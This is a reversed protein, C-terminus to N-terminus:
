PNLRWLAYNLMGAFIVWILYPVLLRAALPHHAGFALIAAGLVGALLALDVLAWGPQQLGFFLWSWAGNLALQGLFLGLALPAGRFGAKRWVLWAAIAMLTYLVTWVPGFLWDPPTWWPKTLGAYWPGPEFRSGFWAVVFCLALWMLLGQYAPARELSQNNVLM